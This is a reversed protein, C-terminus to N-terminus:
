KGKRFQEFDASDKVQRFQFEIQPRFIQWLMMLAMLWLISGQLFSIDPGKLVEFVTANWLTMMFFAPLGFLLLVMLLLALGLVVLGSFGKIHFVQM